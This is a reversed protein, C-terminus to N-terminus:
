RNSCPYSCAAKLKKASDSIEDNAGSGRYTGFPSSTAKICFDSWIKSISICTSERPYNCGQVLGKDNNSGCLQGVEAIKFWVM